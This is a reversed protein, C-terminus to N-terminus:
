SLTSRPPPPEPSASSRSPVKRGPPASLPQSPQPVGLSVRFIVGEWSKALVAKKEAPGPCRTLQLGSDSQHASATTVSSTEGVCM